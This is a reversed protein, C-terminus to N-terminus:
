EGKLLGITGELRHGSWTGPRESKFDNSNMLDVVIYQVAKGDSYM